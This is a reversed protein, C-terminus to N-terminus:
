RLVAVLYRLTEYDSAATMTAIWSSLASCCLPEVTVDQQTMSLAVQRGM